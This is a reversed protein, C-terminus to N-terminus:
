ILYNLMIYKYKPLTPGGMKWFFRLLYTKSSLVRIYSYIPRQSLNPLGHDVFTLQKSKSSAKQARPNHDHDGNSLFGNQCKQSDWTLGFHHIQPIKSNFSFYHIRSVGYTISLTATYEKCRPLKM